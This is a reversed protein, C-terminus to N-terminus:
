IITQRTNTSISCFVIWCNPCAMKSNPPVPTGDIFELYSSKLDAAYRIDEKARYIEKKCMCCSIMEGKKIM